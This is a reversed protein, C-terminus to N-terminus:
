WHVAHAPPSPHHTPPLCFLCPKTHTHTHAHCLFSVPFLLCPVGTLPIGDLLEDEISISGMPEANSIIDALASRPVEWAELLEPSWEGTRVDMLMTRSANTVDTLFRGGRTAGGTLNQLVTPM